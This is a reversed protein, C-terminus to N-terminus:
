LLLMGWDNGFANADVFDPDIDSFSDLEKPLEYYSTGLGGSIQPPLEWGFVLEKM